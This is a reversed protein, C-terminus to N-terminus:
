DFYYKQGCYDQNGKVCKLYDLNEKQLVWGTCGSGNWWGGSERTPNCTSQRGHTGIAGRPLIRDKNVVFTFTDVGWRNPAKDGNIDVDIQFCQTLQTCQLSDEIGIQNGIGFVMGDSLILSSEGSMTNVTNNQLDKRLVNKFCKSKTGSNLNESCVRVNRIYKAFMEAIDDWSEVTWTTPDGYESLVGIYANSMTTYAKKLRVVTEKERHNAILNPLTLAAVIGIIGLTILVEALTFASKRKSEKRLNFYYGRGCIKLTERVNACTVVHTACGFPRPSLTKLVTERIGTIESIDYCSEVHTAAKDM